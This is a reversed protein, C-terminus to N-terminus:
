TCPTVNTPPTPTGTYQNGGNGTGGSTVYSKFAEPTGAPDNNYPAYHPDDLAKVDLQPYKTGLTTYVAAGWSWLLKQNTKSYFEASWTVDNINAPLDVPVKYAVAQM